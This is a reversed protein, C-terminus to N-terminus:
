FPVSARLLYHVSGIGYGHSEFLDPMREESTTTHHRGDLQNHNHTNTQQPFVSSREKFTAPLFFSLDAGWFFARTGLVSDGL